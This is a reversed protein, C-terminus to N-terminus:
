GALISASDFRYAPYCAARDGLPTGLQGHTTPCTEASDTSRTAFLLVCSPCTSRQLPPSLWCPRGSSARPIGRKPSPYSYSWLRSVTKPRIRIYSYRAAPVTSHKILLPITAHAFMTFRWNICSIICQQLFFFDLHSEQKLLVFFMLLQAQIRYWRIKMSSLTYPHLRQLDFM